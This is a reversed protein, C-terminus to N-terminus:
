RAPQVFSQVNQVSIKGADTSRVTIAVKNNPMLPGKLGLAVVAINPKDTTMM